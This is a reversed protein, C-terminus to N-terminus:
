IITNYIDITTTGINIRINEIDAIKTATSDNLDATTPDVWLAYPNNTLAGETSVSVIPRFFGQSTCPLRDDSTASNGSVGYDGNFISNTADSFTCGFELLTQADIITKKAFTCNNLILYLGFSSEGYEGEIDYSTSDGRFDCNTFIAMSCTDPANLIKTTSNKLELTLGNVSVQTEISSQEGACTVAYDGDVEVWTAGGSINVKSELIYFMEDETSSINYGGPGDTIAFSINSYKFEASSVDTVIRLSGITRNFSISYGTYDIACTDIAGAINAVDYFALKVNDFLMRQGTLSLNGIRRFSFSTNSSVREFVANSVSGTYYKMELYVMDSITASTTCYYTGPRFEASVSIYKNIINSIYASDSTGPCTHDAALKDADSSDSAAFVITKLSASFKKGSLARPSQPMNAPTSNEYATVTRRIRDIDNVDSFGVVKKSPM